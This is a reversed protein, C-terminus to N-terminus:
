AVNCLAHSGAVMARVVEESRGFKIYLMLANEPSLGLRCLRAIAQVDDQTLEIKTGGDDQDPASEDPLEPQQDAPVHGSLDDAIVNEPYGDFTHDDDANPPAIEAAQEDTPDGVHLVSRYIFEQVNIKLFQLLLERRNLVRETLDPDHRCIKSIVSKLLQPNRELRLRYKLAKPAPIQGFLDAFFAEDDREPAESQTGVFIYPRASLDLTSLRTDGPLIHGRHLLLLSDAPISASQALLGKAASVTCDDPVTLLQSVGGQVLFRVQM